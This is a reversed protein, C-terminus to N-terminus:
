YGVLLSHTVTRSTSGYSLTIELRIPKEANTGTCGYIALANVTYSVPEPLGTESRTLSGSQITTGHAASNVVLDNDNSSGTDTDCTFWTHPSLNPAAYQKLLSYATNDALARYRQTMSLNSVYSFMNFFISIFLAVVIMTVLLEVITFGQESPNTSATSM